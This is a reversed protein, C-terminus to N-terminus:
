SDHGVGENRTGRIQVCNKGVAEVADRRARSV